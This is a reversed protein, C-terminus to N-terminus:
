ATVSSRKKLGSLPLTTTMIAYGTNRGRTKGPKMRIGDDGAHPDPLMLARTKILTVARQGSDILYKYEHRYKDM